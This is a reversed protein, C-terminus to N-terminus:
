VLLFKGDVQLIVQVALFVIIGNGGCSCVLTFPRIDAAFQCNRLSSDVTSNINLCTINGCWCFLIQHIEIHVVAGSLLQWVRRNLVIQGRQFISICIFKLQATRCGVRFQCLFGRLIQNQLMVVTQRQAVFQFRVANQILCFANCVELLSAIICVRLNRQLTCILQQFKCCLIVNRNTTM